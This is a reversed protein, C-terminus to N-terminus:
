NLSSSLLKIDQILNSLQVDLSCDIVSADTEILCQNKQLEKDLIIDVTTDEKGLAILEDKKSMIFDFDDASSRITYTKSNDSNLMAKHILYHIVEKKDEVIIGTVREVLLAVIEAFQPELKNIQDLYELNQKQTLQELEIEKQQIESMGKEFGDQYGKNRAEEYLLESTKKAEEEASKLIREAQERAESLIEERKQNSLEDEEVESVTEIVTANIGEIFTINEEEKTAATEERVSETKMQKTLNILRFQESRENSDIVKKNEGNLYIFRSKIINSLLRM